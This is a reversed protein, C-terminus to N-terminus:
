SCRALWPWRWPSRTETSRSAARALMATCPPWASGGSTQSTVSWTYAGPVALRVRRQRRQAAITLFPAPEHSLV